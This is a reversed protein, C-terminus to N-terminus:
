NFCRLRNFDFVTLKLEWEGDSGNSKSQQHILFALCVVLIVMLGAALLIKLVKPSSSAKSCVTRPSMKIMNLWSFKKKPEAIVSKRKFYLFIPLICAGMWTVEPYPDITYSIYAKNQDLTSTIDIGQFFRGVGWFGFYLFGDLNHFIAM